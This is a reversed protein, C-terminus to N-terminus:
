YIYYGTPDIKEGSSNTVEFHIHPGTAWGTAGVLSIKQGGKVNQGKSVLLQSNHAYLSSISGHNIVVVNGYGNMWGAYAVVGDMLSYVSAGQPAGIDVAAQFEDKGTIPSTRWGYGSTIPYATGGTISYIEGNSVQGGEYSATKSESSSNQQAEMDKIMGVIKQFEEEKQATMEQQMAIDEEAKAVLNDKEERKSNLVEMREDVTKKNEELSAKETAVEKLTTELDSRNKKFEEIVGNDYSVLTALVQVREIFDSMSNSGLLIEIYGQGQNMYLARFRKGMVEKNKSLNLELEKSKEELNSIDEQSQGIKSNLDELQNEMGKLENDLNNIESIIGSKKNELEDLKAKSNEIEQEAAKSEEKMNSLDQAAVNATILNSCLLVAILVKLKKNMTEEKYGVKM